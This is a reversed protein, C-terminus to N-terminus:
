ISRTTNILWLSLSITTVTFLIEYRKISRRFPCLFKKVYNNPTPYCIKHTWFIGTTQAPDNNLDLTQWHLNAFVNKILRPLVDGPSQRKMVDGVFLEREIQILWTEGWQGYLRMRKDDHNWPLIGRNDKWMFRAQRDFFISELHGRKVYSMALVNSM